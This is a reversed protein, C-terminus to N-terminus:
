FAGKLEVLFSVSPHEQGLTDKVMLNAQDLLYVDSFHRSTILRDLFARLDGLGRAVCAIKLGRQRYDPQISRIKVGDPVVEELQDLLATWRFSDKAILQNAYSVREQLQLYAPSTVEETASGQLGLDRNIEELHASIQSNYVHLRYFSNALLLLLLILLAALLFYGLFLARRNVYGRSALNLTLKM